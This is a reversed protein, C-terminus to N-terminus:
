TLPTSDALRGRVFMVAPPGFVPMFPCGPAGTGTAPATHVDFDHVSM